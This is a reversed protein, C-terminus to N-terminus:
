QHEREQGPVHPDKKESSHLSTGMADSYLRDVYHLFEVYAQVFERGAKVSDEAHIKKETANTFRRRIGREVEHTVLDVLRDVSGDKLAKDGLTVVRGPDTGAPKLGTYPAGESARHLRVVTEFFYSEALDKGEGGLGGVKLTRILAKKVQEEQDKNVWKLIPTPDETLLAKKADAVVPGDLADCHAEAQIPIMFVVVSCMATVIATFIKDGIRFPM